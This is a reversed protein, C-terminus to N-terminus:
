LFGVAKGSTMRSHGDDIANWMQYAEILHLIGYTFLPILMFVCFYVAISIASTLLFQSPNRSTAVLIINLLAIIATLVVPIILSIIYIISNAHTKPKMKEGERLLIKNDPNIMVMGTKNITKAIKSLRVLM